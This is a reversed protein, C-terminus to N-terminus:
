PHIKGKIQFIISDSFIMKQGGLIEYDSLVIHGFGDQKLNMKLRTVGDFLPNNEAVEAEISRIDERSNVFFIKIYKVQVKKPRVPLYSLEKLNNGSQGPGEMEKYLGKLAPKNINADSFMKLENAWQASDPTFVKVDNQDRLQAYKELEYKGELLLQIQNGVMVSLDFYDPTSYVRSNDGSCSGLFLLSLFIFLARIM